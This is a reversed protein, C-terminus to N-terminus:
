RRELRLPVGNKPRLTILPTLEMEFDPPLSFNYQQCVKAMIIQMEMMAFNNGVCMRAGGGFPFYAYRPMEKIKDAAFREPKFEEPRDWYRESHQMAFPSALVKDGKHIHYGDLVDDQVAERVIIWAPPYLRMSEKIVMTCYELQQLKDFTIEGSGIVRTLEDHVRKMVEPHKALLYFTFALANATTEHGAIFITLVEDRLQRDTMREATDADEVEMLMTLLDDYKGPESRRQQIIDSITADLVRLNRQIRIHSPLPFWFPFRMVRSRNSVGKLMLTMARNVKEFDSKVDTSLLTTGVIDLTLRNMETYVDLPGTEKEKWSALMDATADAIKQAFTQLRQKHFIPQILRRQKLWFEGESTLLGNGLLHRLMGGEKVKVYTDRHLLMHEIYDPNALFVVDFPGFRVKSINGYDEELQCLFLHARGRLHFSPKLLVNGKPGPLAAAAQTM